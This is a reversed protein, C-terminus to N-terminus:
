ERADSECVAKLDRLAAGIIRGEARRKVLGPLPLALDVSLEYTVRTGSDTAEFRYRGDLARIMRGGDVLTWSFSRPADAHDYALVYTVSRGMAAARFEVEVPHGEDDRERVDVAKVDRAWEPYREFDAAVEYCQEPPADIHTRETAQEAM